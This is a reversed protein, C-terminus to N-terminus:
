QRPNIKYKIGLINPINADTRLSKLLNQEEFRLKTAWAASDVGVILISDQYNLVQCHTLLHTPIHRTLCMNLHSILKAKQLIAHLSPNNMLGDIREPDKDRTQLNDIRHSFGM